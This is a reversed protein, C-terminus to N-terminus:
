SEHSFIEQHKVHTKTTLTKEYKNEMITYYYIM